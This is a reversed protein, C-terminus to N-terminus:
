VEEGTEQGLYEAVKRILDDFLFVIEVKKTSYIYVTDVFAEAIERTMKDFHLTGDARAQVEKIERIMEDETKILANMQDYQEQLSQIQGTVATKESQYEELTIMEEAFREYLRIRSAQLMEIQKKIKGAEQAFGPTIRSKEGKLQDAFGNLIQMQQNLSYCIVSEIWRVGYKERSCESKKGSAVAHQCSVVPNVCHNYDMVRRCNGCRIKGKLSFGRDQRAKQTSVRRMVAQAEYFDDHTVIAEHVGEVIVRENERTRRKVKSGVSVKRSKGQVLAGTYTYNRLVRWVMATDWLWEADPVKQKWCPTEKRLLRYQGPTPIKEENLYDVIQHSNWGALAKDFILRVYGASIPDVLWKGKEGAAKQYGFPPKASTSVGQKWKTQFSSTIKKSIDRSYLANVLNTISMELGITKGVYDDSDYNSNVAIFRIGLAPFVQELYDGTGIYDRGLRSLDKVLITDIIGNKADEVMRIFSPREFNTGTYGDDIYEEAEKPFDEQCRVYNELLMRQNEISNSEDKGGEGLDGDARSLRLYFALKM